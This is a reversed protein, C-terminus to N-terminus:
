REARCAQMIALLQGATVTSAQRLALELSRPVRLWADDAASNSSPLARWVKREDLGRQAIACLTRADVDNPFLLTRLARVDWFASVPGHSAPLQSEMMALWFSLEADSGTSVDIAFGSRSPQHACVTCLRQLVQISYARDDVRPCTRRVLTEVDLDRWGGVNKGTIAARVASVSPRSLAAVRGRFDSPTLSSAMRATKSFAVLERRCADALISVRTRDRLVGFECYITLPFRRGVKDISGRMVGILVSRADADRYAFGVTSGSLEGGASSLADNAAELWREFSRETDSRAGIRIFEASAPLKGFVGVGLSM